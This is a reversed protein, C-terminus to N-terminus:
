SQLLAGLRSREEKSSATVVAVLADVTRKSLDGALLADKLDAALADELEDDCECKRYRPEIENLKLM